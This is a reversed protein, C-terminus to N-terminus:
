AGSGAAGPAGGGSGAKGPAGEPGTTAVAAAAVAPPGPMAHRARDPASLLDSARLTGHLGWAGLVLNPLWM